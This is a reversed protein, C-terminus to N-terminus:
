RRTSSTSTAASRGRADLGIPMDLVPGAGLSSRRRARAAVRPHAARDRHLLAYGWLTADICAAGSSRARPDRRVRRPRADAVRDRELDIAALNATALFAVVEAVRAASRSTRGRARISRTAAARSRSCAARRPRSSRAAAASTCRSTRTRQGAGPLLVRVRPRAHRVARARRRDDHTPRAGRSRRHQRAPDPRARRDAPALEDPERARGPVHLRRRDVFPGDVYKDVQEGDVWDIAITPASTARASSSRRAAPRRARWRRAAVLRRARQGRRHDDLRPGDADIAHARPSSRCTPSRSRACRRPSATRRSASRRRCSRAAARAARPRAVAPEAAIM